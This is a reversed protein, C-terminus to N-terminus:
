TFITDASSFRKWFATESNLIFISFYNISLLLYHYKFTLTVEKNEKSISSTLYQTVFAWTIDTVSATCCTWVHENVWQTESILTKRIAFGFSSNSKVFLYTIPILWPIVSTLLQLIAHVTINVSTHTFIDLALFSLLNCSSFMSPLNSSLQSSATDVTRVDSSMFRDLALTHHLTAHWAHSTQKHEWKVYGEHLSLSFGVIVPKNSWLM